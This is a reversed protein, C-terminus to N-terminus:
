VHRSESTIAMVWARWTYILWTSHTKSACVRGWLSCHVHTYHAHTCTHTMACFSDHWIDMLWIVYSHTMDCLMLAHTMDYTLLGHWMHILWTVYTHTLDYICSMVWASGVCVAVLRWEVSIARLTITMRTQTKYIDRKLSDHWMNMLWTLYSYTMDRIMNGCVAVLRWVVCLIFSDHWM